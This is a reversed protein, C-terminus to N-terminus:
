WSGIGAFPPGRSEGSKQYLGISTRDSARPQIHPAIVDGVQGKFPGGGAVRPLIRLIAGEVVGQDM